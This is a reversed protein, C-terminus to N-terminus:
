QCLLILYSHTQESLIYGLTSSIYSLTSSIYGLTSSIYGLTSSIYGLKSSIYSLTFSIHSLTSSIYGLTSSIYDLTSSIYGLTSSIYGATSSIYGHTYSIYGLTSSIYGLTSSINGLTSANYGLHNSRRVALVATAATRPEVGADESVTYDSPRCIFCHQIDYMSFSFIRFFGEKVDARINLPTITTYPPVPEGKPRVVLLLTTAQLRSVPLKWLYPM